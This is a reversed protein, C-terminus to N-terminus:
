TALALEVQSDRLRESFWTPYYAASPSTDDLRAMEDDTLRLTVAGLNDELQSEKSVGVLVSTVGRKLLLWASAVRSM